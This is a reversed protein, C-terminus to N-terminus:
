SNKQHSLVWSIMREQEALTCKFAIHQTLILHVKNWIEKISKNQRVSQCRLIDPIIEMWDIHLESKLISTSPVYANLSITFQTFTDLNYCNILAAIAHYEHAQLTHSTNIFAHQEM